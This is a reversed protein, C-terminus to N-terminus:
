GQEREIEKSIMRARRELVGRRRELWEFIGHNIAVIRGAVATAPDLSGLVIVADGNTDATIMPRCGRSNAPRGRKSLRAEIRDALKYLMSAVELVAISALLCVIAAIILGSTM